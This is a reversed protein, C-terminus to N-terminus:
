WSRRAQPLQRQGEAVATEIHLKLRFGESELFLEVVQRIHAKEDRSLQSASPIIKPQTSVPIPQAKPPSPRANKQSRTAEPIVLPGRDTNPHTIIERPKSPSRIPLETQSLGSTPETCISGNMESVVKPVVDLDFGDFSELEEEESDLVANKVRRKPTKSRVERTQQFPSPSRISRGLKRAPGSIESPVQNLSKRKRNRPTPQNVADMDVDEGEVHMTRENVVTTSYPPPPSEPVFTMMDEINTFEDYDTSQSSAPIIKAPRPSKAHRLDAEYQDSKRKRSHSKSPSEHRETGTLDIAEIEQLQARQKRANSRGLM